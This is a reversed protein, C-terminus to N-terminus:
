VGELAQQTTLSWNGYLERMETSNAEIGSGPGIFGQLGLNTVVNSQLAGILVLRAYTRRLSRWVTRTPTSSPQFRNLGARSLGFCHRLQRVSIESPGYLDGYKTYWDDILYGDVGPHAQRRSDSVVGDCRGCLM